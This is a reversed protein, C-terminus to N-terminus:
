LRARNSVESEDKSLKIITERFSKAWAWRRFAISDTDFMASFGPIRTVQVRMGRAWSFFNPMLGNCDHSANSRSVYSSLFFAYDISSQVLSWFIICEYKPDMGSYVLRGTRLQNKNVHAKPIRKIPTEYHFDGTKIEAGLCSTMAVTQISEGAFPSSKYRTAREQLLPIQSKFKVLAWTM